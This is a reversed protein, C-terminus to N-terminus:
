KFSGEIQRKQEARYGKVARGTPHKKSLGIDGPGASQVKKKARIAAKEAATLADWAKQGIKKLYQHLERVKRGIGGPTGGVYKPTTEAM